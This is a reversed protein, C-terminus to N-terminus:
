ENDNENTVVKVRIRRGCYGDCTPFNYVKAKKGQGFM